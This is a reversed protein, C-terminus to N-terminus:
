MLPSRLLHSYHHPQKVSHGSYVSTEGYTGKSPAHLSTGTGTALLRVHCHVPIELPLGQPPRTGHVSQEEKCHTELYMYMYMYMCMYGQTVRNLSEPQGASSGEHSLQYLPRGLVCFTAPELGAWPLEEKERSFFNDEANNSANAKDRYSIICTSIIALSVSSFSQRVHIHQIHM